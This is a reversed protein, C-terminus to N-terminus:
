ATIDVGARQWGPSAAAIAAPVSYANRDHRGAGGQQGSGSGSFGGGAFGSGTGRDSAANGGTNSDSLSFSLTRGDQSLGASDLTRHLADQDAVLLRLTEPRDAAVHVTAIGDPDREIRVQVHGLEGPDLRLTVTSGSNAQSLHVLAAGVQHM